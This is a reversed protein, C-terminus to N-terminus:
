SLRRSLGRLRSRLYLLYVGLTAWTIALASAVYVGNHDLGFMM